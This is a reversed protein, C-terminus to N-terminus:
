VCSSQTFICVFIELTELNERAHNQFGIGIINGFARYFSRISISIQHRPHYRLHLLGYLECVCEIVNTRNDTSSPVVMEDQENREM